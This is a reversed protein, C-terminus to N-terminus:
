VCLQACTIFGFFRFRPLCCSGFSHDRWKEGRLLARCLLLLLEAYILLLIRAYKTNILKTKCGEKAARMDFAHDDVIKTLLCFDLILAACKKKSKLQKIHM